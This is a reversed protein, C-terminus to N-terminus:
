AVSMALLFTHPLALYKDVVRAESATDQEDEFTYLDTGVLKRKKTTM